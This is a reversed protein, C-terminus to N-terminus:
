SKCDPTLLSLNDFRANLNRDNFSLAMFGMQGKVSGINLTVKEEGDVSLAITANSAKIRLRHFQSVDSIAEEVMELVDVSITGDGHNGTKIAVLEGSSAIGILVAAPFSRKSKQSGAIYFGVFGDKALGSGALLKVDVEACYESLQFASADPLISFDITYSPSIFLRYEGNAYSWYSNEKWGSDESAFNDSYLSNGLVVLGVGAVLSLALGYRVFLKSVRTFM